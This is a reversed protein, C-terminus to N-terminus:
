GEHDSPVPKAAGVDKRVARNVRMKLGELQYEFDKYAEPSMETPWQLQGTVGEPLAFTETQMKVERSVGPTRIAPIFINQRTSAPPEAAILEAVPVPNASEEVTAYRGDDFFAVIRKAEPMQLVGQSEWQVYDGVKLVNSSKTSGDSSKGLNDGEVLGAFKISERYDRLFNDVTTDVFGHEILLNSRMSPPMENGWTRWCFDYWKPSLVTDKIEEEREKSDKEDLLIRIARQTLKLAKGNSSSSDEILGYSKLAAIMKQGSSSTPSYKWADKVISDAPAPARKTFEWMKGALM